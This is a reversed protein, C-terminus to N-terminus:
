DSVWVCVCVDINYYKKAKVEAKRSGLIVGLNAPIHLNNLHLHVYQSRKRVCLLKGKQKKKTKKLHTMTSM